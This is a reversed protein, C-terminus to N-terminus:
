LSISEYRYTEFIKKVDTLFFPCKFFKAGYM